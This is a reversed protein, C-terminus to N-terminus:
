KIDYMGKIMIDTDKIATIGRGDAKPILLLQNAPIITGKPIDKGSILNSIGGSASPEVYAKARNTNRVIIETSAGGVLTKGAPLKIIKFEMSEKLDAIEKQAADLKKQTDDLKKQLDANSSQIQSKIDTALKDIYTSDYITTDNGTEAKVVPAFQLLVIGCIILALFIVHKKKMKDRLVKM